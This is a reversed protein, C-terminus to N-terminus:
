PKISDITLTLPESQKTLTFPASLTELDGSQGVANGSVSLRAGVVLEPVSELQAGTMSMSNDLTITFPFAPVPVNQAVIPMPMSPSRAFIFLRMDPTLKAALLPAVDITVTLTSGQVAAKQEAPLSSEVLAIRQRLEEADRSGPTLDSLQRRWYQLAAVFDQKLFADIAYLSMVAQENPNLALAQEMADQAEPTIVSEAALYRAQALQGLVTAKDPTPEMEVLMKDFVSIAEAYRDMVLYLTGLMSGTQLDDPRRELRQELSDALEALAASQAQEDTADTIKQMLAPLALDPAAGQSRYLLLAGVPIALALAIPLWRLPLVAAAPKDQQQQLAEMDLMFARQLEALMRQHDEAAITGEGVERELEAQRQTFIERNRTARQAVGAETERVRYRWVPVLVFGMAVVTLLVLPLWLDAV